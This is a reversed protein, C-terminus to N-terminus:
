FVGEMLWASPGTGRSFVRPFLEKKCLSTQSPGAVRQGPMLSVRSAFVCGMRCEPSPPLLSTKQPFSALICPRVRAQRKTWFRETLTPVSPTLGQGLLAPLVKVVKLPPGPPRIRPVEASSAARQSARNAPVMCGPPGARM